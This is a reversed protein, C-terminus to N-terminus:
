AVFPTLVDSTLMLHSNSNPFLVKVSGVVLNQIDHSSAIPLLPPLPPAIEALLRTPAVQSKPNVGQKLPEQFSQPPELTSAGSPDGPKM